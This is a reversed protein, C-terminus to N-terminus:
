AQLYLAIPDTVNPEWSLVLTAGTVQMYTAFVQLNNVHDICGDHEEVINNAACNIAGQISSGNGWFGDDAAGDNVLAGNFQVKSTGLLERVVYM